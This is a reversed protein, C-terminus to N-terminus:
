HITKDTFVLEQVGSIKITQGTDTFSVTTVGHSSSINANEYTDNFQVVDNHGSSGDISNTASM